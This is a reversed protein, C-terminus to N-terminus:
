NGIKFTVGAAIIADVMVGDSPIVQVFANKYRVQLGGIPVVDGVHFAFMRGDEPYLALGAFLSAEFDNKRIVPVSVTVAVSTKNFSNDYVGISYSIKPNEWTLFVGPNKQNFDLKTDVHHSGMLFSVRDPADFASCITPSLCLAAIAILKM